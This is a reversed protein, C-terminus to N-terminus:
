SRSSGGPPALLASGYMMCPIRYCTAAIGHGFIDRHIPLGYMGTGWFIESLATTVVYFSYMWMGMSGFLVGARRARDCLWWRDVVPVRVAAFNPSGGYTNLTGM